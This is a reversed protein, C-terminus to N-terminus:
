TLWWRLFIQHSVIAASETVPALSMSMIDMASFSNRLVTSDHHVFCFLGPQKALSLLGFRLYVNHM